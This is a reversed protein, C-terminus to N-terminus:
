RFILQHGTFGFGKISNSMVGRPCLPVTLGLFGGRVVHPERSEFVHGQSQYWTKSRAKSWRMQVGILTWHLWLRKHCEIDCGTTLTANNIRVIGVIGGGVVVHPERSEFRTILKYHSLVEPLVGV